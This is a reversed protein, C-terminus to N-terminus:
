HKILTSRERLFHVNRNFKKSCKSNVLVNLIVRVVASLERKDVGKMVGEERKNRALIFYTPLLM